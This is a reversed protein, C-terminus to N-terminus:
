LNTIPYWSFPFHLWYFIYFFKCCFNMAQNWILWHWLYIIKHNSIITYCKSDYFLIYFIVKKKQKQPMINARVAKAASITDSQIQM